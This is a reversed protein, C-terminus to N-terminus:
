RGWRGTPEHYGADGKCVQCHLTNGDWRFMAVGHVACLHPRGEADMPMSSPAMVRMDLQQRTM